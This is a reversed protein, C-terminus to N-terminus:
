EDAADSTYLLCIKLLIRVPARVQGQGAVEVASGDPKGKHASHHRRLVLKEMRVTGTLKFLISLMHNYPATKAGM